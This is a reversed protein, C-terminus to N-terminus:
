QKASQTPPPAGNMVVLYQLILQQQRADLNARTRMEDIMKPWDHTTHAGPMPPQHCGGCRRVLLTRGEQLDTLAVKGREADLATAHPPSAGSCAAASALMLFLGLRVV